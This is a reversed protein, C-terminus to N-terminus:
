EKHQMLSFQQWKTYIWFFHNLMIKLDWGQSPTPFLYTAISMETTHSTGPLVALLCIVGPKTTDSVRLLLRSISLTSQRDLLAKPVAWPLPGQFWLIHVTLVPNGGCRHPDRTALREKKQCLRFSHQPADAFMAWPNTKIALEYYLITKGAGM